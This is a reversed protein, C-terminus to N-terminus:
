TFRTLNRCVLAVAADLAFEDPESMVQACAGDTSDEGGGGEAGCGGSVLQLIKRCAWAVPSSAVSKKVRSVMV